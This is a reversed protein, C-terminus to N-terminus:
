TNVEAFVPCFTSSANAFSALIIAERAAYIGRDFAVCTRVNEHVPNGNTAHKRQLLNPIALAIKSIEGIHGLYFHKLLLSTYEFQGYGPASWFITAVAPAG